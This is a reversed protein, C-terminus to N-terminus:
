RRKRRKRNRWEMENRRCKIGGKGEGDKRNRRWHGREGRIGRREEEM